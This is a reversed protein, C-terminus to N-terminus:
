RRRKRRHVLDSVTHYVKFATSVGEYIMIGREFARVMNGMPGTHKSRSTEKSEFKRAFAKEWNKIEVQLERHRTDLSELTYNQTM